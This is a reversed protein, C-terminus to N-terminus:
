EETLTEVMAAFAPRTIFVGITVGIITAWAFGRLLGAGAILLPFMAVVTTFYAAMIIFFARKLKEKWRYFYEKQSGLVEDIIVILDDVGTGVAAIIGAIAALDLNYKILSFIGLLIVIESTLGILMPISIKLNRYRIFVVVSVSIVALIGVILANNTFESGLIPSITDLREIELDVPLSGTILITQLKNMQNSAEELAENQTAGVGPGSIVIQTAEVGQLDASIKLSDVLENDLYLELDQSLYQQNNETIITLNRTLDAQRKAAGPSLRIQFEFRCQVTDPAVNDCSRIGACTGDNRCVFTVDDGGNFATDNGIKAEFVGQSAILESVEQKTAGAIEVLIFKNGSFDDTKRIDIDSLGYTNLRFEMIQMLEDRQQETIDSVPKLLVRTGGQLELGKKINSSPANQVSIGLDISDKPFSYEDKDTKIRITSNIEIESIIRSYDDINNIKEGNIEKIIELNTPSTEPTPSQIGALNANSDTEVSKISVGSVDFQPNIAFYSIILFALLILVRTRKFIKKLKM